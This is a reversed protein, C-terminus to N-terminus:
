PILEVAQAVPMTAQSADTALILRTVTKLLSTSSESGSRAKQIGGDLAEIGKQDGDTASM